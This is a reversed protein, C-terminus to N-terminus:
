EAGGKLRRNRVLVSWFHLKQLGGLWGAMNPQPVLGDPWGDPWTIQAANQQLQLGYNNAAIAM